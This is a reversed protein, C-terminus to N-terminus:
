SMFKEISKLKRMRKGYEASDIKHNLLMNYYRQGILRIKDALKSSVGGEHLYNLYTELTTKM